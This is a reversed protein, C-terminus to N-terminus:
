QGLRSSWIKMSGLARGHLELPRRIRRTLPVLGYVPLEFNAMTERLLFPFLLSIARFASSRIFFSRARLPSM